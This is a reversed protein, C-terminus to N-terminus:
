SERPEAVLSLDFLKKEDLTEMEELSRSIWAQLPPIMTLNYPELQYQQIEAIVGAILRCKKFNILGNALKDKSGEEIFTM